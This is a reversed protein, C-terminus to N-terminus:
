SLNESSDVFVVESTFITLSNKTNHKKIATCISQLASVDEIKKVFMLCVFNTEMWVGDGNAKGKKGKAFLVPLVTYWQQPLKEEIVDLLEQLLIQNGIIEVRVM